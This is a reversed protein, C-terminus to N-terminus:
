LIVMFKNPCGYFNNTACIFAVRPVNIQEVFLIRCIGLRKIIAKKAALFRLFVINTVVHLREGAGWSKLELHCLYETSGANEGVKWEEGKHQFLPASCTLRESAEWGGAGGVRTAGEGRTAGRENDVRALQQTVM